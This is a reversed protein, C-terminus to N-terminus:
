LIARMAASFYHEAFQVSHNCHCLKRNYACLAAQFCANVCIRHCVAAKIHALCYFCDSFLPIPSIPTSGKIDVQIQTRCLAPGSTLSHRYWRGVSRFPSRGLTCTSPFGHHSSQKSLAIPLPALWSVLQHQHVSFVLLLVVWLSYNPLLM